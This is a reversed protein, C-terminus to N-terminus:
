KKFHNAMLVSNGYIPYILYTRLLRIVKKKWMFAIDTNRGKRNRTALFAQKRLIDKGEFHEWLAKVKGIPYYKYLLATMMTQDYRNEIFRLDEEKREEEGIDGCLDLRNIMINRWESIYDMGIPTKKVVIVNAGFQFLNKWKYPISTSFYALVSRRTWQYNRQHIMFALIDYSEMDHLYSELEKCKYISSGADLYVVVDGENVKQLTQWIVDSKWSYLGFGKKVAFTPSKLLEPSLDKENYTYYAGFQGTARAQDVIRDRTEEFGTSAFTTFIHM